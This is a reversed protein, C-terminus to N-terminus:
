SKFAEAYRQLWREFLPVRMNWVGAQQIIYGHEALRLLQYQDTPTQGALIQKVTIKCQPDECFENWFIRMALNERDLTINIATELDQSTMQRRLDKNAIDVM